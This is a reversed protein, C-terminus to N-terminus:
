LIMKIGYVVGTLGVCICGYMAAVCFSAVTFLQEKVSAMLAAAKRRCLKFLKVLVVLAVLVGAGILYIAMGEM